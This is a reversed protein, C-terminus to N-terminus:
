RPLNLEAIRAIFASQAPEGLGLGLALKAEDVSYIKAMEGLLIIEHRKMDHYLANARARWVARTGTKAAHWKEIYYKLMDVKNEQPEQLTM